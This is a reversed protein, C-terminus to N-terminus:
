SQYTAQVWCPKYSSALWHLFCHFSSQVHRDNNSWTKEGEHFYHPLENEQHDSGKSRVRMWSGTRLVKLCHDRVQWKDAALYSTKTHCNHWDQFAIIILKIRLSEWLRRSVQCYGRNWPVQCHKITKLSSTTTCIYSFITSFSVLYIRVHYEIIGPFVLMIHFTKRRKQQPHKQKSNKYLIYPM